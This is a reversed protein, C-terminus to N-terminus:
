YTLSVGSKQSSSFRAGCIRAATCCGSALLAGNVGSSCASIAFPSSPILETVRNRAAVIYFYTTGNRVDSDTFTTRTGSVTGIPKNPERSAVPVAV